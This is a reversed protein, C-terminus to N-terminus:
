CLHVTSLNENKFLIIHFGTPWPWELVFYICVILMDVYFKVKYIFVNLYFAVSQGTDLLLFSQEGHM